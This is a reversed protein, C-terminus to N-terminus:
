LKFGMLRAMMEENAAGVVDRKDREWRTVRKTQPDRWITDIYSEGDSGIRLSLTPEDPEFLWGRWQHWTASM